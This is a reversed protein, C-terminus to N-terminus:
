RMMSASRFYHHMLYFLEWSQSNFLIPLSSKLNQNALIKIRENLFNDISDNLTEIGSGLFYEINNWGSIFGIASYLALEANLQRTSKDNSNSNTIPQVYNMVQETGSAMKFENSNNELYGKIEKEMKFFYFYSIIVSANETFIIRIGFDKLYKEQFIDLIKQIETIRKSLNHTAEIEDIFDSIESLTRM